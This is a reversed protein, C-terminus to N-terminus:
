NEKDIGTGYKNDMAGREDEELGGSDIWDKISQLSDVLDYKTEFGILEKAKKTEFYLQGGQTMSWPFGFEIEVEPDVKKMAEIFNNGTTPKKAAINFIEGAAKSHEGATIHAAAVDRIDVFHYKEEATFMQVQAKKKEKMGIAFERWARGGGKGASGIVTTLRLVTTPVEYLNYYSYAIIEQMRKTACYMDKIDKSHVPYEEDVPLYRPRMFEKVPYWGYSCISGTIVVRNVPNDKAWDLVNLLGNVNLAMMQRADGTDGPFSAAHYIVDFSKGMLAKDVSEQNTLDAVISEMNNDNSPIIDLISVTDGREISQRVIEGGVFGMGGVVLVKPM